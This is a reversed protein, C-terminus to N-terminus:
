QADEDGVRAWRAGGERAWRERLADDAARAGAPAQGGLRDTLRASWPGCNIPVATFDDRTVQRGIRQELCGICLLGDGDLKGLPWVKDHVMYYELSALTDVGCDLCLPRPDRIAEIHFLHLQEPARAAM